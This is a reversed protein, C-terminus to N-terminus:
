CCTRSWGGEWLPWRSLIPTSDRLCIRTRSSETQRSRTSRMAWCFALRAPTRSCPRGRRKPCSALGGSVRMNSLGYCLTGTRAHLFSRSQSCRGGGLQFAAAFAPWRAVEVPKKSTRKSSVRRTATQSVRRPVEPLEYIESVGSRVSGAVYRLTAASSGAVVDAIDALYSFGGGPGRQIVCLTPEKSFKPDTGVFFREGVVHVHKGFYAGACPQRAKFCRVYRYTGAQDREYLVAAGSQGSWGSPVKDDLGRGAACDGPFGTLVYKDSMAMSKPSQFRKGDLAMPVHTQVSGSELDVFALEGTNSGITACARQEACVAGAIVDASGEFGLGSSGFERVPEWQTAGEKFVQVAGGLGAALAVFYDGVFVGGFFRVHDGSREELLLPMSSWAGEKKSYIRADVTQAGSWKPFCVAVRERMADATVLADGTISQAHSIQWSGDELPSAVEWKDDYVRLFRDGGLVQYSMRGSGEDFRQVLELEVMKAAKPKPRPPRRLDRLFSSLKSSLETYEPPLDNESDFDLDHDYSYVAPDEDKSSVFMQYNGGDWQGIKVFRGGGAVVAGHFSVGTVAPNKGKLRLDEELCRGLIYLNPHFDDAVAAAIAVTEKNAFVAGLRELHEVVKVGASKSPMPIKLRACTTYWRM